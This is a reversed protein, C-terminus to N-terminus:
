MKAIKIPENLDKAYLYIKDILNDNDHEKRLNLLANAKGSGSGGFISVRYPHDPIYPWKKNHNENNENAINDLNFM